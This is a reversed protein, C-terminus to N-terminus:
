LRGRTTPKMDISEMLIAKALLTQMRNWESRIYNEQWEDYGDPNYGGEDIFHQPTMEYSSSPYSYMAPGKCKCRQCEVFYEMGDPCQSEEAEGGCMQCPMLDIM